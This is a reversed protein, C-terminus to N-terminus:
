APPALRYLLEPRGRRGYRHSVDVVARQHLYDLYRRVTARSTGTEAAIEVATAPRGTRLVDLMLEMTPASFGKPLEAPPPPEPRHSGARRTWLSDIEQQGFIDENAARPARQARYARLRETFVARSFPKVLYGAVEASLAQRVTVRDRASSIVIVDVPAVAAARLRHLVEIGSFEPLHIDLLVLDVAIRSIADMAASGSHVAGSVLFGPEETVYRTHLRCVVPDDDVILTRIPRPATM